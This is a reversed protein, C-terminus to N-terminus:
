RKENYLALQEIRARMLNVVEGSTAHVKMAAEDMRRYWGESDSNELYLDAAQDRAAILTRAIQTHIEETLFPRQDDVMDLAMNVSKAFDHCAQSRALQKKESSVDTQDYRARVRNANGRVRSLSRWVRRLARFETEFHLRHVFVTKDLDAQLRRTEREFATKMEELEAQYRRRDRELLKDAMFSGFWRGAALVLFAGGGISAIAASVIIWADQVSM